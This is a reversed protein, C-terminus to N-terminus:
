RSTFDCPLAAPDVGERILALRALNYILHGPLTQSEYWDCGSAMRPLPADFYHAAIKEAFPIARDLWRRDRLRALETMLGIALGVDKSPVPKDTPLPLDLCREAVAAALDILRGEDVCAAARLALLGYAAANLNGYQSGWTVAPKVIQGTDRHILSILKDAAPDHPAALFARVYTQGRKRLQSTLPRDTLVEASELLSVGLSLTQAPSSVHFFPDTQPSRSEIQLLDQEDRRAWWYDIWRQLNPLLEEAGLSAAVACDFAFFGSHRPFDCSRENRKGPGPQLIWAHRNYERPQGDVDVRWHGELGQCFRRVVAPKIAWLRRWLWAPAQLLHDHIKGWTVGALEHSDGLRDEALNWYAHEGWPFLGTPTDTCHDAFRRLYRDAAATYDARGLVAGLRDLSLLVTHDHSLNSGPHSRDHQRQGAIAPPSIAPMEGTARDLVSPILGGHPEAAAVLLDLAKVATHLMSAIRPM